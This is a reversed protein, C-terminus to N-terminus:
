RSRSRRQREATPSTDAENGHGGIMAALAILLIPKFRVAGAELLVEPL